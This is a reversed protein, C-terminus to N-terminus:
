GVYKPLSAQHAEENKYFQDRFSTRAGINWDNQFAPAQLILKAISASVKKLTDSLKEAKESYKNMRSNFYDQVDVTQLIKIDVPMTIGDHIIVPFILSPEPNGHRALEKQRELMHSIECTCWLSNLYDESWLPMIIRSASIADALQQPWPQGAEMENVDIFIDPGKPLAPRVRQKLLPEFHDKIWLNTEPDRRYSLFIDYVYSM